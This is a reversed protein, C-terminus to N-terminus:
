DVTLFKKMDLEVVLTMHDPNHVLESIANRRCDFPSHSGFLLAPLIGCNANAAKLKQAKSATDLNLHQPALIRASIEAKHACGGNRGRRRVGFGFTSFSQQRAALRCRLAYM